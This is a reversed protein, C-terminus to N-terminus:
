TGIKETHSGPSIIALHIRNGPRSRQPHEGRSEAIRGRDGILEAIHKRVPREAFPGMRQGLQQSVAADRGPVGIAMRSGLQM